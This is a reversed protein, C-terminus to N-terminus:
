SSDWCKQASLYEGILLTGALHAFPSAPQANPNGAAAPAGGIGGVNQVNGAAATPTSIDHTRPASRLQEIVNQMQALRDSITKEAVLIRNPVTEAYDKLPQNTANIQLLKEIESIATNKFGQLGEIKGEIKLLRENMDKLM